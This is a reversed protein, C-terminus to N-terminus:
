CVSGDLQGRPFISYVYVESPRGIFSEIKSEAVYDNAEGYPSDDGSM